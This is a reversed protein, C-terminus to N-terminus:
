QSLLDCSFSSVLLFAAVEDHGRGSAYILPTHGRRTAANVDAGCELVLFRVFSTESGRLQVAFMLSTKGNRNGVNVAQFFSEEGHERMLRRAEAEAAGSNHPFEQRLRASAGCLERLRKALAFGM